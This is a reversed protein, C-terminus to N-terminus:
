VKLFGDIQKGAALADKIWKPKPGRGSWKNGEDDQYKIVSPKKSASKKAASNKGATKKGATKVAKRGVRSPVTKFNLDQPRLGFEAIAVNIKEIVGATERKRAAEAEAHVAALLKETNAIEQKLELYTRDPGRKRAPKKAPASRPQVKRARTKNAAAEKM